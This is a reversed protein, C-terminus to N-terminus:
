SRRVGELLRRVHAAVTLGNDHAGAELWALLDDSCRVPPIQSTLAGPKLSGAPRGRRPEAEGDGLADAEDMAAALDRGEFGARYGLGRAIGVPDRRTDALGLWIEHEEPTGFREGHYLRRLGRIYGAWYESRPSDASRRLAEAGRALTQFERENM